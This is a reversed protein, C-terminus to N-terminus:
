IWAIVSVILLVFEIIWFSVIQFKSYLSNRVKPQFQMDISGSRDFHMSSIIRGKEDLFASVGNNTVRILPLGIEVARVQAYRFSNDNIFGSHDTVNLIAHATELENDVDQYFLVDSFFLPSLILEESVRLLSSEDYSSVNFPFMSVDYHLKKFINRYPLSESFPILHKANSTALIKGKSDIVYVSKHFYGKGNLLERHMSGFILLQKKKLVGSVRKLIDPQDVISFPFPLGAWIIISPEVEGVSVPLATISLYRELINAYDEKIESNIGPQVVRIVPSTKEFNLSSETDGTLRWFGYTVHSILLISSLAMGIKVDKCTGFLAPSAFCFVSLANMGFLGIWHVSQMMVPIPMAAYGIANWVGMGLYSRLWECFGVACAFICIRGVGTSWLLSAISTALGYFIALIFPIIMFFMGGRLFSLLPNIKEIIGERIWCFGILFYGVGFLWGLFFSSGLRKMGQTSSIGDLLWILLTFSVFSAFFLDSPLMSFSGIVGALIALFYRRIGSLLMVKGAINGM